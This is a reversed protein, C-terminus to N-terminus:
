LLTEMAADALSARLAKYEALQDQLNKLQSGLAEREAQRLLPHTGPLPEGAPELDALARAFKDAQKQTVQYQSENKIM